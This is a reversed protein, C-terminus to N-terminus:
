KILIKEIAKRSNKENKFNEIVETVAAKVDGKLSVDFGVFVPIEGTEPFGLVKELNQEFHEDAGRYASGRDEFRCTKKVSGSNYKGAWAGRILNEYQINRRFFSTLCSYDNVNRYIYRYGNMIFNLGYEVSSKVSEYRKNALFDDYHWRLSVQMIGMDSGDHGRIIQKLTPSESVQDCNALFPITGSKLYQNFRMKATKAEEGLIAGENADPNCVSGDNSTERFHVYLGEQLPVTMSLVMFAYYGQSDGAELYTKAQNHAENLIIKMVESIYDQRKSTQSDVFIPGQTQIEPNITFMMNDLFEVRNVASLAASCTLLPFVLSAAILRRTKLSLFM